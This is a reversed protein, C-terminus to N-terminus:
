KTTGWCVDVESNKSKKKREKSGIGFRKIVKERRGGGNLLRKM